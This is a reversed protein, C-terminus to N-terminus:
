YCPSTTDNTYYPMCTDFYTSAQPPNGANSWFTGYQNHPDNWGDNNMIGQFYMGGTIVCDACGNATHRYVDGWISGWGAPNYSEPLPFDFGIGWAVNYAEGYDWTGNGRGCPNKPDSSYDGCPDQTYGYDFMSYSVPYNKFGNLANVTQNYSDWSSTGDYEIDDGGAMVIQKALDGGSSNLSAQAVYVGSALGYGENYICSPSNGAWNCENSNSVGIAVTVHSCVGSNAYYDNAYSTAFSAIAGMSYWTQGYWNDAGYETGSPNLQGFDLVTIVSRGFITPVLDLIVQLILEPLM